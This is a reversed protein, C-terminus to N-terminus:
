RKYTDEMMLFHWFINFVCIKVLPDIFFLVPQEPREWKRKHDLRAHTQPSWQSKCVVKHLKGNKKNVESKLFTSKYTEGSHKLTYCLFWFKFGHKPNHKNMSLLIVTEFQQSTKFLFDSVKVNQILPASFPSLLYSTM